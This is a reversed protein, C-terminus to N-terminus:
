SVTETSHSLAPKAQELYSEYLDTGWEVVDEDSTLIMAIHEGDGLENYAGVAIQREDYIGIGLTLTEEVRYIDFNDYDSDDIFHEEGEERLRDYLNKDIVSKGKLGLKLLLTYARFLTPNYISSLVRFHDLRPDCLKLAAGLVIGPADPSSVYLKADDLGNVPVDAYVQDLRQFWPAKDMVQEVTVALEDYADLVRKGDRTIQYRGDIEKIWQQSEFTRLERQVTPRSPSGSGQGALENPRSPYESLRQLLDLAHTSQTLHSLPEREITDLCTDFGDLVVKGGATLEYGGDARAPKTLGLETFHTLHKSATQRSIPKQFDIDSPSMSQQAIADLVELRASGAFDSIFERVDIREDTLPNTVARENRTVTKM